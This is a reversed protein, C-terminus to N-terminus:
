RHRTNCAVTSRVLLNCHRSQVREKMAVVVVQLLPQLADVRVPAALAEELLRPADHTADPLEDHVVLIHRGDHPRCLHLAVSEGERSRSVDITLM